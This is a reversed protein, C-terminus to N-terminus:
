RERDRGQQQKKGIRHWSEIMRRRALFIREKKAVADILGAGAVIEPAAVPDLPGIDVIVILVKHVIEVYGDGVPVVVNRYARKSHPKKGEKTALESASTTETRGGEGM